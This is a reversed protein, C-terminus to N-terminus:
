QNIIWVTIYYCMYFAINDIRPHHFGWSLRVNCNIRRIDCDLMDRRLGFNMESSEHSVSVRM